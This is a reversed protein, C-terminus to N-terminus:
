MGKGSLNQNSLRQYDSCSQQVGLVCATEYEMAAKKLEGMLELVYGKNNYAIAMKPDLILATNCDDMAKQYEGLETYAGARNVLAGANESDLALLETTTKIVGQWDQQQFQRYSVDALQDINAQRQQEIVQTLQRVTECAPQYALTCANRYDELASDTNELLEYVYARNNYALANDPDMGIAVGVDELAQRTQGNEAYAWSRVIYADVLKADLTMAQTAAHIAQQWNKESLFANSKQVWDQASATQSQPMTHNESSATIPATAATVATASTIISSVAPEMTYVGSSPSNDTASPNGGPAPLDSRVTGPAFTATPVETQIRPSDIQQPNPYGGEAPHQIVRARTQNTLVLGSGKLKPLLTPDNLLKSKVLDLIAQNYGDDFGAHYDKSEAPQVTIQQQHRQIQTELATTKEMLLQAQEESIPLEEAVGNGPSLCVVVMCVSLTSLAISLGKNFM